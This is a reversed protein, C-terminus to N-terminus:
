PKPEDDRLYRRALRRRHIGMERLIEPPVVQDLVRHVISSTLAIGLGVAGVAVLHSAYPPSRLLLIAYFLAVFAARALASQLIATRVDSRATGQGTWAGMAGHALIAGAFYLGLMALLIAEVWIDPGRAEEEIRLLFFMHFLANTAGFGLGFATGYFPTERRGRFTRWNLVAAFAGAELLGLLVAYLGLMAVSEPRTISAGVLHLATPALQLELFTILAGGLM